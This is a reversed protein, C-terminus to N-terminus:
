WQARNTGWEKEEGQSLLNRKKSSPVLDRKLAKKV